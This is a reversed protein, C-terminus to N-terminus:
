GKLYSKLQAPKGTQFEFASSNINSKLGLEGSKPAVSIIKNIHLIASKV